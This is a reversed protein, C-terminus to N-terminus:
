YPNQSAVSSTEALRRPRKSVPSAAPRERIRDPKHLLMSERPILEKRRWHRLEPSTIRQMKIRLGAAPSSRFIPFRAAFLASTATRGMLACPFLKVFLCAKMLLVETPTMAGAM